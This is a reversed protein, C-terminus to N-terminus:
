AAEGVQMITAKVPRKFFGFAPDRDSAECTATFCVRDGKRADYLATPKTGWFVTGSDTKVMMITRTGWDTEKNDLKIIEGEIEQRGAIVPAAQAREAARQRNIEDRHQQRIMDRMITQVFKDSTSGYRNIKYVFDHRMGRFGYDGAGVCETAFTYAMERDPNIAFWAQRARKIRQRQRDLAARKRLQHFDGSAREFRNGLCQEGVTLITQTPDHRLFAAYRIRNGCHGCRGAYQWPTDAEPLAAASEDIWKTFGDEYHFDAYGVYTYDETVLNTATHADTRM